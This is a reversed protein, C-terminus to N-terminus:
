SITKSYLSKCNEFDLIAQDIEDNFSLPTVTFQPHLKLNRVLSSGGMRLVHKLDRMSSRKDKVETEKTIKDKIAGKHPRGSYNFDSEPANKGKKRISKM